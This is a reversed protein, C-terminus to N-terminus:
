AGFAARTRQCAAEFDVMLAPSRYSLSSVVRESWSVYELMRQRSWDPPPDLALDLVNSTKDALKILCAGPSLHPGHTIQAAKRVAKPQSKDDTVEAVLDAIAAGFRGRVDADSVPTDEVIDHLVAACLVATSAHTDGSASISQSVTLCHNIYPAKGAGKRRQDRHARAAYDTAALLLTMDESLMCRLM